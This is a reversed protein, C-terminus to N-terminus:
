DEEHNTLADAAIAAGPGGEGIIRVLRTMAAKQGTAGASRSRAIQALGRAAAEAEARAASLRENMMFVFVSVATGLAGLLACGLLALVIRLSM